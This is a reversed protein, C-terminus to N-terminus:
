PRRFHFYFSGAWLGTVLLFFVLAPIFMANSLRPPQAANGQVVLWHVYCLFAALLLGFRMGQLNLYAQTDERREEALWYDRNPIRLSTAQRIALSQLLAIFLPVGAAIASMFTLYSSRMMYGSAAGSADFHAAMLEPLRQGTKHIFVVAALLLLLFVTWNPRRQTKM